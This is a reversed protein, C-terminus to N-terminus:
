MIIDGAILVMRISALIGGMTFSASTPAMTPTNTEGGANATFAADTATCDLISPDCECCPVSGSSAVQEQVVLCYSDQINPM